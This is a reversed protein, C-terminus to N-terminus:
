RRLASGAGDLFVLACDARGLFPLAQNEFVQRLHPQDRPANVFPQRFAHVQVVQDRGSREPQDGGDVPEIGGVVDLQLGVGFVLDPARDQVAQPAQVPRRALLALAGLLDFRGDRHGLLPQVARGGFIFDGRLEVQRQLFIM